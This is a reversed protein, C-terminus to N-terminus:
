WESQFIGPTGHSVKEDSGVPLRQAFDGGDLATSILTFRAQGPAPELAEVTFNITSVM